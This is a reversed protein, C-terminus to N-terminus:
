EKTETVTDIELEEAKVEAAEPEKVINEVQQERPAEAAPPPVYQVQQETGSHINKIQILISNTQARSEMVKMARDFIMGLFIVGINITPNIEIKKYELFDELAEALDEKEEQTFNALDQAKVVALEFFQKVTGQTNTDLYVIMDLSAKSIEDNLIYEQIRENTIDKTSWFILGRGALACVADVAYKTFKKKSKRKLKADPDAPQFPKKPPPNSNLPGYTKPKETGGESITADPIDFSDKFNTPENYASQAQEKTGADKSFGDELVYDRIKPEERNQPDYKESTYEEKISDRFSKHGTDEKVADPDPTGEKDHDVVSGDKKEETFEVAETCYLEHLSKLEADNEAIQFGTAKDPNAEFFEQLEAILKKQKFNPLGRKKFVKIKEAM